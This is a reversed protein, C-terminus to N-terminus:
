GPIRDTSGNDVCLIEIPGPYEQEAIARITRYIIREENRACIVVTVAQETGAGTLPMLKRNMLNSLFMACMLYGPLLAIGFVVLLVYVLPLKEDLHAIWPVALWISLFLWVLAGAISLFFSCKQKM